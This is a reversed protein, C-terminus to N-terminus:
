PRWSQVTSVNEVPNCGSMWLQVTLFKPASLGLPSMKILGEGKLSLSRHLIPPLFIILVLPSSHTWPFLIKWVCCVSCMHVWLSQANCVLDACSWAVHPGLVSLFFYVHPAVGLWFFMFDTKELLTGSPKNVMSWPLDMPWSYRFLLLLSLSLSLLLLLNVWHYNKHTFM